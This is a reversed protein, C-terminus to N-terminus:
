HLVFKRIEGNPAETVQGSQFRDSLAEGFLRVSVHANPKVYALSACCFSGFLCLNWAVLVTAGALSIKWM